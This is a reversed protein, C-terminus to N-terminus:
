SRNGTLYQGGPFSYQEVAVVADMIKKKNVKSVEATTKMAGLIGTIINKFNSTNITGWAKDSMPNPILSGLMTKNLEVVLTNKATEKIDVESYLPDKVLESLQKNFEKQVAKVGNYLEEGIHHNKMTDYFTKNLLEAAKVGEGIAVTFGDHNNLAHIEDMINLAIVSEANQISLITSRVGPDQLGDVTAVVTRKSELNSNYTQVITEEGYYRKKNNKALAMKSKFVTKIFPFMDLLAMDISEMEDVTIKREKIGQEKAEKKIFYKQRNLRLNRMTNYLAAAYSIGNNLPKFTAKMDGYVTDIATIFAKGYFAEVTERITKLSNPPIVTDLVVEPNIKENLLIEEKSNWLRYGTIAKIGENIKSLDTISDVAVAKEIKSYIKDIVIEGLERFLAKEQMGYVTIMTPNKAFAVNEGRFEGFINKLANFVNLTNKHAQKESANGSKEINQFLDGEIELLANAWQFETSMYTDFSKKRSLHKALGERAKEMTFFMGADQLAALVNDMNFTMGMLQIRGIAIGNGVGEIETSLDTEFKTQGTEQSTLYRAYEILAKMGRAGMDAAVVGETIINIEKKYKKRELVMKEPSLTDMGGQKAIIDQLAKVAAVIKPKELLDKVKGIACSVGGEEITKIGLNLAVAEMFWEVMQPDSIDITQEWHSFNFLARHNKDGQMNIPGVEGMRAQSWFKEPVYFEAQYTSSYKKAETLWEQVSQDSRLIDINKGMAGDRNVKHQTSLDQWGLIKKINKQGMLLYFGMTRPSIKRPKKEHNALKQSQDESSNFPTKKLPAPEGKRKRSYWSYMNHSPEGKFLMNWTNKSKRFPTIYCDMINEDAEVNEVSNDSRLRYFSIVGEGAHIYTKTGNADTDIKIKDVEFHQVLEEYSPSYKATHSNKLGSLGTTVKDIDDGDKVGTFIKKVTLLGMEQMTAVAQLGLSQELRSQMDHDANPGPKIGLLSFATKGITATLFNSNHGLTCVLRRAAYSVKQDSRLALISRIADDNNWLSTTGRSGIWKYSAAMLADIVGTLLNGDKDILYQIPDQWRYDKNRERSIMKKKFLDYVPIQKKDKKVYGTYDFLDKNADVFNFIELMSVPRDLPMDAKEARHLLQNIAKKKVGTNIQGNDDLYNLNDLMKFLTKLSTGEVFKKKIAKRITVNFHNDFIEMSKLVGAASEDLPHKENFIDMKYLTERRFSKYLVRSRQLINKPPTGKQRDKETKPLFDNKIPNNPDKKSPTTLYQQMPVDHSKEDTSREESSVLSEEEVPPKGCGDCTPLNSRYENNNGM